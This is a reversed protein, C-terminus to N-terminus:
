IKVLEQQIFSNSQVIDNMNGKIFKNWNTFIELAFQPIKEMDIVKFEYKDIRKIFMLKNNDIVFSNKLYDYILVTVLTQAIYNHFQPNKATTSLYVGHKQKLNEQLEVHESYIEFACTPIKANYLVDFEIYYVFSGGESFTGDMEEFNNLILRLSEHLTEIPILSELAKSLNSFDL